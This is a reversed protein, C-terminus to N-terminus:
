QAFYGKAEPVLEVFYLTVIPDNGVENQAADVFTVGLNSGDIVPVLGVGLDNSLDYFFDQTIDKRNIDAPGGVGYNGTDPGKIRIAGASNGAVTYGRLAYLTNAKMNQTFSSLAASGSYGGSTGTSITAEATTQAKKFKEAFEKTCYRAGGIGEYLFLNWATDKDGATGSGSLEMTISDQQYVREKFGRPTLPINLSATHRWRLGQVDNAMRPSRIRYNGDAQSFVGAKVLYVNGEKVARITNSNNDFGTFSLSTLTTDAATTQGTILELIM